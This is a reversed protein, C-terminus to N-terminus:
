GGIYVIKPIMSCSSTEALYRVMLLLSGTNYTEGNGQHKLGQTTRKGLRIEQWKIKVPSRDYGENSHPPEVCCWWKSDLYSLINNRLAKVGYKVSVPGKWIKADNSTPRTSDKGQVSIRFINKLDEDHKVFHHHVHAIIWGTHIYSVPNFMKRLPLFLPNSHNLRIPCKSESGLVIEAEEM